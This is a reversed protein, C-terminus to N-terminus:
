VAACYGFEGHLAKVRSAMGAAGHWFEGHVVGCQRSKGFRAQRARGLGLKGCM